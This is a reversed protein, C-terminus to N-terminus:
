EYNKLLADCIMKFLVLDEKFDEPTTKPAIGKTAVDYFTELEVVYADKYNARVVSEEFAEGVTETIHLTIPLSKIYPTGYQIKMQKSKGFLEIHADFRLQDDVGTEFTANFGDFEFTATIYYGNNWHSASIVRKPMGILERMASLDHSNLGCLLRYSNKVQQPANGLVEDVMMKARRSRDEIAEKPLDDFRYVESSQDIILRNPGIIARIRAYQLDGLSKLDEVAKTFTPAYRRMYGVMVQVGSEDRARILADADSETLTMPKEILIHKKNKAAAIACEAHYEDSNLVFVADLDDQQALEVADTYLNSVNYHQGMTKLLSPSIDCLAAIEYRDSLSKLIPLHIIQAVEGLGIVGVKLKKM